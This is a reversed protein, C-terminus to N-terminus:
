RTPSATPTPSGSAGELPPATPDVPLSRQVPDALPYILELGNRYRDPVTIAARVTRGYTTWRTAPGVDHVTFGVGNVVIPADAPEPAPVGCELTVPPDGWAATRDPSQVPRRSVGPDVEQPLAAILRRCAADVLGGGDPPVPVPVASAACGALLVM